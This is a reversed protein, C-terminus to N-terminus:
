QRQNPVHDQLLFRLPVDVRERWSAESHEAGEFKRTTWDVDRRYGAAQMARDMRRQYPEYLADLTATGFDFYIRHAGPTPLAAGFWDVLAEKGIPWHTSVCAAGGFVAPYECLAYLSILGGMSSGMVFTSAQEPTTRYTADIHPKLEEVLFRLYRDSWAEFDPEGAYLRAAERVSAIALPKQPMYERRRQEVKWVGVVIAGATAGQEILRVMAEDIGWDVGAFAWSPEFLNQGDHMYFVPYAREPAADYGPPLWVDVARPAVHASPFAAYRELRGGSYFGQHISTRTMVTEM